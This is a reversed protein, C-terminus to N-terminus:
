RPGRGAQRTPHTVFRGQDISHQRGQAPCDRGGASASAGVGPLVVRKGALVETPDSTVAIDSAGAAKLANFVSQLNGAGYDILAVGSM